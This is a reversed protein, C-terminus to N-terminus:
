LLFATPLISRTDTSRALQVVNVADSAWATVYRQRSAYDEWSRLDTPFYKKRRDIAHELVDRIAYKHAARILSALVAVPVPQIHEGNHY